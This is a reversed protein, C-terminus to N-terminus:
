LLLWVWRVGVVRLTVPTHFCCLDLLFILGLSPTGFTATLFFSSPPRIFPLLPHLSGLANEGRQM